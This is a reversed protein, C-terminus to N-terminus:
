ALAKFGIILMAIYLIITIVWVVILIKSLIIMIRDFKETDKLRTIIFLVIISGTYAIGMYFFAKAIIDIYDSIDM